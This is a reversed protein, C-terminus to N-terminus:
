VIPNQESPRSCFHKWTCPLTYFSLSWVSPTIYVSIPTQRSLEGDPYTCCWWLSNRVLLLITSAYLWNQLIESHCNWQCNGGFTKGLSFVLFRRLILLLEQSVFLFDTELTYVEHSSCNKNRGACNLVWHKYKYIFFMESLETQINYTWFLGVLLLQTFFVHLRLHFVRKKEQFKFLFISGKWAFRWNELLVFPQWCVLITRPPLYNEAAYAPMLHMAVFIWLM